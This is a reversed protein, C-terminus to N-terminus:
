SVQPRSRAREARMEEGPSPLGALGRRRLGHPTDKTVERRITDSISASTCACSDPAPGSTPEGAVSPGNGALGRLKVRGLGSFEFFFDLPEDRFFEEFFREFDELFRHPAKSPAAIKPIKSAITPPQPFSFPTEVVAGFCFSAYGPAEKGSPM